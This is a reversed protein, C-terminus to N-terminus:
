VSLGNVAQVSVIEPLQGRIAQEIGARMTMASMSCGECTGLWKIKVIHDETVDVVEVNGGDVALHPRVENLAQDIKSILKQKESTSM